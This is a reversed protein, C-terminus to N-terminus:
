PSIITVLLQILIVGTGGDVGGGGGVHFSMRNVFNGPLHLLVVALHVFLDSLFLFFLMEICIIAVFKSM